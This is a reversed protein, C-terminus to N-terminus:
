DAAIQAEAQKINFQGLLFSRKCAPHVSHYHGYKAHSDSKMFGPHRSLMNRVSNWKIDKPDFKAYNNQVWEQIESVYLKGTNSHSIALFCLETFSLFKCKKIQLSSLYIFSIRVQAIYIFHPHHEFLICNDAFIQLHINFLLFHTLTRYLTRHLFSWRSSHVAKINWFRKGWTVYFECNYM